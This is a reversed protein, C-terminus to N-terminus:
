AGYFGLYWVIIKQGWFFAVFLGISLFPGFALRQKRKIKGSISLFLILLAASFFSIIFALLGLKWGLFLGIVAAYKVDGMGMSDVKYVLKGVYGILLFILFLIFSGILHDIIYDIRYLVIFLIVPILTIILLTNPLIQFDIDIFTLVVVVSFLIAIIAFQISLGFHIFIIYYIAAHLAEVLPYRISIKTECNSCKGGLFLYSIIPINEWSKIQHDCNTCKSRPKVISMKNPIRYICVNLFSGVVLGILIILITNM